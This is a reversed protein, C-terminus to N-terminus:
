KAVYRDLRTELRKQAASLGVCIIWYYLGAFAYLALFENSEAAALQSERFLETLLVVSGLSTDKLLSLLTNSLPPVATRAAQPLVIRRLTRSYDLGITAAAEFQGKPVALIASRVVEAAYGAVNLSFAIVAATFPNFKLGIQPLGYFVIFLQLLLPTGRIISIFGRALGSLVRYSSIRALAVLLALALGIAFSVITLPITVKLLGVFMPWATNGIVEWTSRAGRGESLDAKGGDPVSVDAKFYKESIERLTGDDQLATIAKNAQGILATDDKRFALVQESTEDGANGAIEVDDSGTSALYDLVAINDNVIADVRGQALLAAAQAFGEVAEVNAGADRAVQAWNSTASQATTKGKLDALTKISDDGKRRVIVGHSFTYTESLGYKAQREDNVSVQNAIVDIREADLAPFIADWQTEVFELRWGAQKAIAKIVEIDYGTLEATRPDHFSFPPYTGETGVRVVPQGADRAPAASAQAPVVIVLLLFLVVGRLVHRM